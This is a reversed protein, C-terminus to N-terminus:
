PEQGDMRAFVKRRVALTVSLIMSAGILHGLLLSWFITQLSHQGALLVPHRPRREESGRM